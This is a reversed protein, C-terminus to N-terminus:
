LPSCQTAKDGRPCAVILNEYPEGVISMEILFRSYSWSKNRVGHARAALLYRTALAGWDWPRHRHIWVFEFPMYVGGGVLGNSLLERWLFPDDISMRNLACFMDLREEFRKIDSTVNMM